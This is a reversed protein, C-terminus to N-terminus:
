YTVFDVENQLLENPRKLPYFILKAIAQKNDALVLNRFQIFQDAIPNPFDKENSIITHDDKSKKNDGESSNSNNETVTNNDNKSETNNNQCSALLLTLSFVLSNIIRQNM